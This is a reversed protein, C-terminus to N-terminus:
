SKSIRGQNLKLFKDCVKLVNEDKTTIIVSAGDLKSLDVLVNLVKKLEDQRLYNEPEDILFLNVDRCLARTINFLKKFSLSTKGIVKDTMVSDLDLALVNMYESLGTRESLEMIREDTIQANFFKFNERITGSFIIDKEPAYGISKRLSLPELQKINNSDLLIRGGQPKYMGLILKLITTKGAGDHGTVGMIEGPTTTFNIKVLAPNSTKSYKISVDVFRVHGKIDKTAVMSSKLSTDQALNMFRNIQAISKQLGSVQVSLNFAGRISSLVKWYILMIGILMGMSMYGDLIRIVGGYVILLVSANTIFYSMSRSVNVYDSLTYSHMISKSMIEKNRKVWRDQLGSSKIDEANKLIELLNQQRKGSFESHREMKIRHFPRMILGMIVVVIFTVIPIFGLWGGIYFIAGVYIASFILELLDIFVDSTVFRKLNEFDKIRNIQSNISATETYSPSLYLLRTFTQSSIVSGMRTSIYNLVRARIFGLGYSSGIYLLVGVYTTVLAVVTGQSAIQDYILIVLVPIVLDLCTILFSLIIVSKISGKFRYLLKNFWNKQPHVLSETIDEAYQFIYIEGSIEGMAKTTYIGECGDFVLLGNNETSLILWHQDKDVVLAPLIENNLDKKSFSSSREYKFQLNALTELLGETTMTEDSETQAEIVRNTDGQWNLADLLPPLVRSAPTKLEFSQHDQMLLLNSVEM